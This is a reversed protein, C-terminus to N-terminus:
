RVHLIHQDDFLTEIIALYGPIWLHDPNWILFHPFSRQGLEYLLPTFRTGNRLVDAKIVISRPIDPFQKCLKDIFRSGTKSEIRQNVAKERAM